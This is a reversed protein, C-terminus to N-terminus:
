CQIVKNIEFFGGEHKVKCGYEYLQKKKEWTVDTWQMSISNRILDKCETVGSGQTSLSFRIHEYCGLTCTRRMIIHWYTFAYAANVHAKITIVSMCYVPVSTDHHWASFRHEFQSTGSLMSHITSHVQERLRGTDHQLFHSCNCGCEVIKWHHIVSHFLWATTGIQEM